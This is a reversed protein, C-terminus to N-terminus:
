EWKATIIVDNPFWERVKGKSKNEYMLAIQSRIKWDLKKDKKDNEILIDLLRLVEENFESM